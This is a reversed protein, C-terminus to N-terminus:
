IVSRVEATTLLFLTSTPLRFYTTLELYKLAELAAEEDDVLASCMLLCIWNYCKYFWSKSKGTVRIYPSKCLWCCCGVRLLLFLVFSSRSRNITAQTVILHFNCLSFEIDYCYLLKTFPSSSAKREIVSLAFVLECQTHWWKHLHKPSGMLLTFSIRSPYNSKTFDSHRPSFSYLNSPWGDDEFLGVLYYHTNPSTQRIQLM